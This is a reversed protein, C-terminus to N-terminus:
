KRRSSNVPGSASFDYYEDPDNFLVPTASWTELSNRHRLMIYCNQNWIASSFTFTINGLTDALATDSAIFPYNVTDTALWVYYTDVLNIAATATNM